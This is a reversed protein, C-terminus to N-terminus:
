IGLLEAIKLIETEYEEPSLNMKVLAQKRVEYIEYKVSEPIEEEM